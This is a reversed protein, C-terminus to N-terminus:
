ISGEIAPMFFSSNELVYKKFSRILPTEKRNKMYGLYITRKYHPTAIPLVKFSDNHFIPNDPVIAIGINAAVLAAMSQEDEVECCVTPVTSVKEFQRNIEQKLGEKGAYHILPYSAIERLDIKKHSALPSDHPLIVVLNQECLRVFEIQPDKPLLSILILDLRGERLGTVLNGTCANQTTGEQLCFNAQPMHCSNKFGRILSPVFQSTLTYIFGLHIRENDTASLSKMKEIGTELSHLSTEVYNLFLRGSKTLVVNRGQKEFLITGLEEELASIAHSLSPQTISLEQASKTYHSLKAMTKFYYLQYLNM